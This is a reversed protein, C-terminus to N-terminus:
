DCLSLILQTLLAGDSLRSSKLALDARYLARHTRLLRAPEFARAQKIVDQVFFPHIGLQSAIAKSDMGRAVLEQASWLQRLHRAIMALIRIGPERAGIMQKLVTLAEHRERRGVANTLEFISRQRTQALLTEVDPIEVKNGIGVYLSLRELASALQAKEPGISDGIAHAAGPGLPVSQRRAEAVVWQSIERDKLAEFKVVEGKKKLASFFKLRLDAKDAIMLLCTHPSPDEVYPLLVKLDDALLEDAGRVQVLRKGGLMALTKAASLIQSAGGKKAELGDYNFASPEGGLVAQRIAAVARDREYPEGCLYYIPAIKGSEVDRWIDSM